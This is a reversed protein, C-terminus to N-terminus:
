SATISFAHSYSPLELASLHYALLFCAQQFSDDKNNSNTRSQKVQMM